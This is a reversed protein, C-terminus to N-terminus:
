ITPTLKITTQLPELEMAHLEILSVHVMKKLVKLIPVLKLNVHTPIMRKSIILTQTVLQKVNEMLM